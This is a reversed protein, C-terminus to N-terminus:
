TKEQIHPKPSATQRLINVGDSDIGAQMRDAEYENKKDQWEEFSDRMTRVVIEAGLTEGDVVEFGQAEIIRPDTGVPRYQHEYEPNMKNLEKIKKKRQSTRSTDVRMRPATKRTPTEKVKEMAEMLKDVDKYLHVGKVGLSKAEEKLAELEITETM